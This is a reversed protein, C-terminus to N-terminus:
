AQGSHQQRSGEVWLACGVIHQLYESPGRTPCHIVCVRCSDAALIGLSDVPWESNESLSTSRRVAAWGLRLLSNEQRALGFIKRKHLRQWSRRARCYPIGLFQHHHGELLCHKLSLSLSLSIHRLPSVAIVFLWLGLSFPDFISRFDADSKKQVRTM